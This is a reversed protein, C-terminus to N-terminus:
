QSDDKEGINSGKKVSYWRPKSRSKTPIYIRWQVRLFSKAMILFHRFETIVM